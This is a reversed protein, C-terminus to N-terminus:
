NLWMRQHTRHSSQLPSSRYVARTLVQISQTEHLRVPHSPLHHARAVLRGPVVVLSPHVQTPSRPAASGVQILVRTSGTRGSRIDKIHHPHHPSTAAAGAKVGTNSANAAAVAHPNKHSNHPSSAVNTSVPGGVVGYAAGVPKYGCRTCCLGAWLRYNNEFTGFITFCVIGMAPLNVILFWSLTYDPRVAPHVGCSDATAQGGTFLCQVWAQTSAAIEDTRFWTDLRFAVVLCFVADYCFLYYIMRVNTKWTYNSSNSAHSRKASRIVEVVVWSMICTSITGCILIPWYILAWQATDGSIGCFPNLGVGGISNTGVAIALAAFSMSWCFVHNIIRRREVCLWFVRCCM